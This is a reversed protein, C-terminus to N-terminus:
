VEQAYYRFAIRYRSGQFSRRVPGRLQGSYDIGDITWTVDPTMKNDRIFNYITQYEAKTLAGIACDFSHWETNSRQQSLPTGDYLQENLVGLNIETKSAREIYFGAPFATPM